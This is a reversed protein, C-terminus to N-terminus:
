NPDVKPHVLLIAEDFGVTLCSQIPALDSQVCRHLMQRHAGPLTIKGDILFFPVGALIAELANWITFVAQRSNLALDPKLLCNPPCFCVCHSSLDNM